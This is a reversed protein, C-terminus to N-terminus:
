KHDSLSIVLSFVLAFLFILCGVFFLTYQPYVQNFKGVFPRKIFGFHPELAQYGARAIPLHLPQPNILLRYQKKAEQPTKAELLNALAFLRPILNHNKQFPAIWFKEQTNALLDRNEKFLILFETIQNLGIFCECLTAIHFLYTNDRPLRNLVDQTLRLIQKYQKKSPAIPFCLRYNTLALMQVGRLNKWGEIWRVCLKYNATAIYVFAIIQWFPAHTQCLDKHKKYFKLVWNADMDSIQDLCLTAISLSPDFSFKLSLDLLWKLFLIRNLSRGQVKIIGINNSLVVMGRLCFPHAPKGDALRDCIRQTAPNYLNAEVLTEWAIKMADEDTQDFIKFANDLLLELNNDIKAIQMARALLAPTERHNKRMEELTERAKIWCKRELLWDFRRLWLNEWGPFNSIIRSWIAELKDESEGAAALLNLRTLNLEPESDFLPPVNELVQLTKQPSNFAGLWQLMWNWGTANNPYATLADAMEAIAEEHKGSNWTIWAFRNLAPAADSLTPLIDHIVQNGEDHRDHTSLFWALFDASDFYSFNSQLSQRLLSEVETKDHSKAGDVLAQALLQIFVCSQPYFSLANRAVDVAQAGLNSETLANVLLRQLAVNEPLLKVADKLHQISQEHQGTTWLRLAYNYQSSGDSPALSAGQRLLDLAQDTQGNRALDNALEIRIHSDTPWSDVANQLIQLNKEPQQLQANARCLLLSLETRRPFRGITQQLIPAILLASSKGQGYQLLVQARAEVLDPDGERRSQLEDLWKCAEDAGFRAAINPAIRKAPSLTGPIRLLYQTFRNLINEQASKPLNACSTWILDYAADYEPNLHIAQFLLDHAQENQRRTEFRRSQLLLTNYHRPDLRVSTEVADDIEKQLSDRKDPPLTEVTDLLIHCLERWAWPDLNNRAIRARIVEERKRTSDANHLTQYHIFEFEENDPRQRSWQATIEVLDFITRENRMLSVLRHFPEVDPTQQSWNHCHTLATKWDGRSHHFLVNAKASRVPYKAPDIRSLLKESTQWHGMRIHFEVLFLLLDPDNPKAALAEEAAKVAADADGLIELATILSIWCPAAEILPGFETVRERLYAVAEDARNLLRLNEFVGMVYHENYRAIYASLLYPLTAKQPEGMRSYIDALAHYASAAHPSMRLLKKLMVLANEAGDATLGEIDALQIVCSFPPLAKELSVNAGPIVRKRVISSLFERLRAMNRTQNLATLLMRQLDVSEPYKACLREITQISATTPKALNQIHAEFALFIDNNPDREKMRSLIKRADDFHSHHLAQWIEQSAQGWFLANDDILNLKASQDVPVFALGFPGLPKGFDDLNDLLIRGFRESAPDHIILLEAAMDIGVVAVAHGSDLSASYTMVFPIGNEILKHCHDRNLIFIRAAFGKTKLWDDVRWLPTGNYTLEKALQDADIPKGFSGAIAAVSTPLCADRKQFVAHYDLLIRRGTPNKRLNKNITEFATAKLLATQSQMQEVDGRLMAIDYRCAAFQRKVRRDAMPALNELNLSLDHAIQAFHYRDVPKSREAKACNLWLLLFLNEYSQGSQLPELLSLTEDLRNARFLMHALQSVSSPRDPALRWAAMASEIAPEWRDEMDFVISRVTHLWADDDHTNRLQDLLRHSKKFDFALGYFYANDVQWQFDLDEDGSNLLPTKEAIELNSLLDLGKRSWRCSVRVAPHDPFRRIAVRHLLEYDRPSGLRNALRAAAILDAPQAQQIWGPAFWSEKALQYADIFRNQKYLSEVQATLGDAM